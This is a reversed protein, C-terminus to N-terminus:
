TLEIRIRVAFGGGSNDIAELARGVIGARQAESTAASAVVKRVTGVGASELYDGKAIAPAAAAVLANIRCGSVGNFVKVTDNIAYATDISLGMEDRECAFTKSHNGAAVAHKILNGSGNFAVLHGPTIAEAAKTDENWSGQDAGNLVIVKKAM